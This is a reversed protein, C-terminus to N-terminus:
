VYFKKQRAIRNIYLLYSHAKRYNKASWSFSLIKNFSIYDPEYEETLWKVYEAPTMDLVRCPMWWMGANGALDEVDNVHYQGTPSQWESAKYIHAM